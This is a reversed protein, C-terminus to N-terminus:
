VSNTLKQMAVTIPPWKALDGPKAAGWTTCLYGLLRETRYRQAYGIFAEIAKTERWGSPWVRFGKELLFPISPYAERLEYHWDCVIVDRAIQDIALHTGNTAAEWEGYGMVRDDLLRDGWMLM